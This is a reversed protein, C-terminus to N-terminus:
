DQRRRRQRLVIRASRGALLRRFCWALQRAGVLAAPEVEQEARQLGRGILGAGLMDLRSVAASNITRAL